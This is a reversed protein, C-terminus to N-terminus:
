SRMRSLVDRISREQLRTTDDANAVCELLPLLVPLAIQTTLAILGRKQKSAFESSDIDPLGRLDLWSKSSLPGGIVGLYFGAYPTGHYCPPSEPRGHARSTLLRAVLDGGATAALVLLFKPEFAGTEPSLYFREHRYIQGPRASTVISM